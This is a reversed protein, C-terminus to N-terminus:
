FIVKNFVYFISDTQAFILIYGLGKEKNIWVRQM